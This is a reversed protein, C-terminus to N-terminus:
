NWTKFVLNHESFPSHGLGNWYMKEMQNYFISISKEEGFQLNKFYLKIYFKKFILIM